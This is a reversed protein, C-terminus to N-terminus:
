MSTFRNSSFVLRVTPVFLRLRLSVSFLLPVCPFVSMDDLSLFSIGLTHNRHTSDEGHTAGGHVTLPIQAPTGRM